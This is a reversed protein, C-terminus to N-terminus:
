FNNILNLVLCAAMGATETRLRSKGLSVPIFGEEQALSIEEPSFDGEPGVLICYQKGSAAANKLHHPIQEDVYAIFKQEQAAKEIIFQSFSITSNIQPLSAKLSQKMASVAKKEIRGANIDKRESRQCNIFSIEDIGLEVTKEVLWEMRDNNKTPAIALHIYHKKDPNEKYIKIINFECKKPDARTILSTYYIGKGDVVQMQNGDKMRLVKVAHRSEEEELYYNGVGVKPQYFIHM